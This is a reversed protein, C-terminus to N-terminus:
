ICELQMIAKKFIVTTHLHFYILLDFRMKPYMTNKDIEKFLSILVKMQNKVFSARKLVNKLFHLYPAGALTSCKEHLHALYDQFISLTAFHDRIIELLIHGEIRSADCLRLCALSYHKDYKKKYRKLVSQVQVVYSLPEDLRCLVTKETKVFCSCKKNICKPLTFRKNYKLFIAVLDIM